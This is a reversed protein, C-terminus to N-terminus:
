AAGKPAPLAGALAEMLSSRWDEEVFGEYTGAATFYHRADPWQCGGKEHEVAYALIARAGEVSTPPRDCFSWAIDDVANEAAWYEEQAATWRPDDDKGIDTGRDHILYM